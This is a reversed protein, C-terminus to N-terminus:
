VSEQLDAPPRKLYSGHRKLYSSIIEIAIVVAESPNDNERILNLLKTENESM